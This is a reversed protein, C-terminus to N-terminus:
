IGNVSNWKIEDSISSVSRDLIRAIERLSKEKRLYREIRKRESLNFHNFKNM